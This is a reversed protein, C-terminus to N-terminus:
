FSYGLGGALTLGLILDYKNGFDITLHDNVMLGVGLHFNSPQSSYGTRVVIKEVPKYELGYKLRLPYDVNKELEFATTIKKSVRYAIGTRILTLLEGDTTNEYQVPNMIYTGVIIDKTLNAQLGIEFSIKGNSGYEPIRTQFYNFQTGISIKDMLKRSYALGIKQQRFESFGYNSFSLGFAGFGIPLVVGAGTRNIGNLFYYHETMALVEIENISALGAPNLFLNNQDEFTTSIGGFGLAKPTSQGM